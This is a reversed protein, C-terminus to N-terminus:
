SSDADDMLMYRRDSAHVDHCRQCDNGQEARHDEIAAFTQQDHCHSCIEERSSVLLFPNPSRHPDHCGNCFGGAVPGHVRDGPFDEPDHCSWCLLPGEEKLRNSFASEHCQDCEKDAVPGHVSYSSGAQEIVDFQSGDENLLDISPAEPVDSALPPVGDFFFTLVRHRQEPTACGSSQLVAV